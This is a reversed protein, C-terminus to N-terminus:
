FLPVQALFQVRPTPNKIKLGLCLVTANLGDDTLLSVASGISMLLFKSVAAAVLGCHCLMASRLSCSSAKGSFRSIYRMYYM